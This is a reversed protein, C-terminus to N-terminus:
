IKRALVVQTEYRRTVANGTRGIVDAIARFFDARSPEPLRQYDSYTKLLKIYESSSYTREWPHRIEEIEHFAKALAEHICARTRDTSGESPMYRDYIPETAKYFPTDHSVDNNWVLAISGGPRLATAAKECGSYPEIWHFAQASLVLEFTEAPLPWKEFTTQLVDVNPYPTCNKIALAAMTSSPELGLISYGRRAFPLTIQGTGCGIELIRSDITMGAFSCIEDIVFEQYGPRVEDYLDAVDNFSTRFLEFDSMHELESRGATRVAFGVQRIVPLDSVHLKRNLRRLRFASTRSLVAKHDANQPV